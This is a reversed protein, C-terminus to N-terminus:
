PWRALAGDSRRGIRATAVLREFLPGWTRWDHEGEVRAVHGEPLAGALLRAGRELAEGQAWGVYMAPMRDPDEVYGRLWAWLLTTYNGAGIREPLPEAPRWRELGGAAEIADLIAREGLFPSLLVIGDIREGHERALLLAGLGGMSVGVLWIEEYGRAVAPALVDEYLAQAIGTEGYYRVHLDVAVADCPAGSRVLREPWRHQRFTDPGDGFGPLLIVLCRARVQADRRFALAPLPRSPSRTFYCGALLVAIACATSVVKM